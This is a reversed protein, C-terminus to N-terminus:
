KGCDLIILAINHAIESLMNEIAANKSSMSAFPMDDEVEYTSFSDMSKKLVENRKEDLIEVTYIIRTQEKVIEKESFMTDDSDEKLEINVQYNLVSKDCSVLENKLYGRLKYAYAVDGSIKINSLIDASCDAERLLPTTNSCGLLGFGILGCFAAKFHDRLM